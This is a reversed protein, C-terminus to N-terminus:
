KKRIQEIVHKYYKKQQRTSFYINYTLFVLCYEYGELRIAVFKELGSRFPLTFWTM